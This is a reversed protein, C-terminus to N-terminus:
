FNFVVQLDIRRNTGSFSYIGGATSISQGFKSTALAATNAPLNGIPPALNVDNFLNRAEASVTFSYRGVHSAGSGSGGSGGGLGRSGLNGGGSSQTSTGPRFGGSPAGGGIPGMDGGGSMTGGSGEKGFTFTKGARLNFVFSPPGQELNIPIITDTPGPATNFTGYKTVVVNAVPTSATAYAPRQNFITSGILDQGITINFPSGSQVNMLPSLLIGYKLPITGGAVARNRIDFSARGYDAMLNYPNSPFSGAGGTDSNVHSLTYTGFLSIGGPMRVNMNAIVQSQRFIAASEYEYINGASPNPRTGTGPGSYTGPEPANINNTILQDDGRSNLYTLSATIAKNVQREVGIASQLTFPAHLKPAFAYTTGAGAYGSLQAATPVAPYAPPPPVSPNTYQPPNNYFGPNSVVYETEQTGNLSMVQLQLQQSFRDYFIGWGARVVTKPAPDNKPGIGWAIGIRPAWDAHDNIYNQEEYRLGYSLMINKRAKWDDTIYVGVDQSFLRTLPNGYTISFQSPMGAQYAALSPFTYTGNFNLPSVYPETVERLRGGFTITNKTLSLTATDDVENHHHHYNLGGADDGGTTFAGTVVIEPLTSAPTDTYIQDQAQYSLENVFKLGVIQTDKARMIHQIGELTYGQSQLSLGGIGLDQQIQRNFQYSVTFINNNGFAFDLRPGAVDLTNPATLTAQYPGNQNTANIIDDGVIKRHQYDAYFTGNKGLPGSVDATGLYSYYGPESVATPDATDFALDNGNSTIRGHLKSSGPKTLIEVRGYGLRDYEASFPNQNIRIERIANKPPLSGNDMTFGDVYLQGGNPGVSPGALALLQAQLEDPDDSFADLNKTNVTISSTNNEPTLDVHPADSTVQVDESVNAVALAVNLHQLQGAAITVGGAYPAFGSVNVTVTYTGPTLGHFEFSGQASTTATAAQGGAAPTLAVATGPLIAGSPDKVTGTLSGTSQAVVIPCLALGCAVLAGILAFKNKVTEGSIGQSPLPM